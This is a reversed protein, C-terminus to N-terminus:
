DDDKRLEFPVQAGIADNFANELAETVDPKHAANFAFVAEKPFVIEVLKAKADFRATTNLFLIGYAQKQKKLNDKIAKWVRKFAANNDLKSAQENSLPEFNPKEITTPKPEDKSVVPIFSQEVKTERQQSKPKYRGEDQDILQNFLRSDYCCPAKGFNDNLRYGSFKASFFQLRGNGLLLVVDKETEEMLALIKRAAKDDPVGKVEAFMDLDPLYFDPLYQISGMKYGQPEYVHEIGLEDLKAAWLAELRSRYKIGNYTTEIAKILGM